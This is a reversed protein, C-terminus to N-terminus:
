KRRLWIMALSVLLGGGCVCLMWILWPHHQATLLAGLGFGVVGLLCVFAIEIWPIQLGRDSSSRTIRQRRAARHHNSDPRVARRTPM